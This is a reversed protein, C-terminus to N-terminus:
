VGVDVGDLVEELDLDGLPGLVDPQDGHLELPYRGVQHPQACVPGVDPVEGHHDPAQPLPLHHHVEELFQAAGPHVVVEGSYAPDLAVQGVAECLPGSRLDAEEEVPDLLVLRQEVLAGDEQDPGM